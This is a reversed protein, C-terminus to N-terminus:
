DLKFADSKDRLNDSLQNLTKARMNLGDSRESIISSADSISVINQNIQEAVVSQEESAAAIQASMQSIRSIMESIIQMQEDNEGALRISDNALGNSHQVNDVADRSGSQLSEIQKRIEETSEHTKTALSRVEDAVVAFGRGQEGARAAEIAANLALLNTQEAISQIVDLVAGISVSDQALKEIKLQVLDMREKLNEMQAKLSSSINTCTVAQEDATQVANSTQSASSAIDQITAIMQTIASAVQESESSQQDTMKMMENVDVGMERMNDAVAISTSKSDQLTLHIAEFFQNLADSLENLDKSSSSELRTTLDKNHSTKKLTEVMNALPKSISRGVLSGVIIALSLLVIFLIAMTVVVKNVLNAQDAYAEDLDIESIIGWGVNQIALPAYAMLKQKGQDEFDGYGSEGKLSADVANSQRTEIGISSQKNSLQELIEKSTGTKKLAAIHSEPNEIMGRSQSRYTKDKGVMYSQGTKGLGIDSWKQDYTMVNNIRDIPMQFILIGIKTEGEYIPSAIFSAQGEYSPYYPKFDTLYSAHKDNSSNAKNFAAALGTNQYPGTKLSTAYDLEKFVSYVVYGHEPEVLFIDYYGFEELFLNINSHYKAHHLEYTSAQEQTKILKNKEGLPNPNASIYTYQLLKSNDNLMELRALPNANQNANIEAYQAGFQKNYYDRLSNTHMQTYPPVALQYEFFSSNFAQMADIIMRNNSYTKVQANIFKFYAEIESKQATRISILKDHAGRSLAEESLTIAQWGVLAGSVLVGIISLAIITSIIKSSTTM